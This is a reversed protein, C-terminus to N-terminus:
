RVLWEVSVAKSLTTLSRSLDASSPFTDMSPRNSRDYANSVLSWSAKNLLSCQVNPTEPVAEPQNKTMGKKVYGIQKLHHFSTVTVDAKTRNVEPSLEPGQTTWRTCGTWPRKWGNSHQKIGSNHQRNQVAHMWLGMGDPCVKVYSSAQRIDFVPGRLIFKFETLVLCVRHHKALWWNQRPDSHINNNNSVTLNPLRWLHLTETNGRIMDQGRSLVDVTYVSCAVVLNTLNYIYILTKSTLYSFVPIM